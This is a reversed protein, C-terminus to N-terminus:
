ARPPPPRPERGPPGGGSLLPPALAAASGPRPARSGLDRTTRDPPPPGPSGLSGQALPDRGPTGARGRRAGARPLAPLHPPRDGRSHLWFTLPLHHSTLPGSMGEQKRTM